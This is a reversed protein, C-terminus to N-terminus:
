NSTTYGSHPSYDIDCPQDVGVTFLSTMQNTAVFQDELSLRLVPLNKFKKM